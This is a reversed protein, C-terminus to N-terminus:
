KIVLAVLAGVVAFLIVGVMGYVIKELSAVRHGLLALATDGKGLRETIEDLKRNIEALLDFLSPPQGDPSVAPIAAHSPPKSVM